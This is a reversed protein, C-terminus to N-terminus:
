LVKGRLGRAVWALTHAWAIMSWLALVTAELYQGVAAMHWACWPCLVANLAYLVRGVPGKPAFM